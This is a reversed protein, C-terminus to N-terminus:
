KGNYVVSIDDLYLELPMVSYNGTLGIRIEIPKSFDIPKKGSGTVEKIIITYKQFKPSKYVTVSRGTTSILIDKEGTAEKNYGTVFATVTADQNALAYFTLKLMSSKQIGLSQAICTQYRKPNDSNSKICLSRSGESFKDKSITINNDSKAFYYWSSTKDDSSKAIKLVGSEFGADQLLNTQASIGSAILLTLFFFISSKKM